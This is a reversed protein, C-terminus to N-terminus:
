DAHGVGYWVMGTRCESMQSMWWGHRDTQGAVGGAVVFVLNLMVWGKAEAQGYRINVDYSTVWCADLIRDHCRARVRRRFLM